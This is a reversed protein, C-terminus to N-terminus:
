PGMQELILNRRKWLQRKEKNEVNSTNPVSSTKVTKTYKTSKEKQTEKSNGVVVDQPVQM